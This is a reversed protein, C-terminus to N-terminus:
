MLPALVEFWAMAMGAYGATTPHVGTCPFGNKKAAGLCWNSRVCVDAFYIKQSSSLQEVLKPLWKNYADLQSNDYGGFQIISGLIVTSQPSATAITTLLAQMDTKMQDLSHKQGIDNTGLHILIFDAEFPLWTSSINNIEPITWGPHGEHATQMQPIDNPGQHQSGVFTFNANGISDMNGTDRLMHYLFSRYGGSGDDCNVPWSPPLSAASGCGFTISDGLPLIKVLAECCAQALFLLQWRM